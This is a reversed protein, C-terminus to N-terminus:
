GSPWLRRADGGSLSVSWIEREDRRFLVRGVADSWVPLDDFVPGDTLKSPNLGYRVRWFYQKGGELENYREHVKGLDFKVVYDNLPKIM